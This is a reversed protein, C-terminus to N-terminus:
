KSTAAGIALTAVELSSAPNQGTVLRGDRVAFPKWMPGKQIVAGLSALKTELAFPVIGELGVGKEEENTFTSVKRGKVLPVGKEDVAGVLGAPGHCVAAVVKKASWHRTLLAGLPKNGPLDWMTGHGGALFVVDYTGRVSELPLTKALKKTADADALFATVEASPAENSKPDVPAAGGLPTALDVQAGAKVFAQYPVALEELWFGTPKGTDGLLAHSTLIILVKM